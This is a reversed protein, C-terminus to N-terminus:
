AVDKNNRRAELPTDLALFVASIAILVYITNDFAPHRAIEYMKKRFPNDPSLLFFSNGRFGFIEVFEKGSTPKRKLQPGSDGDAGREELYIQQLEFLATDSAALNESSSKKEMELAQAENDADNFARILIALFLNLIIYNGIVM